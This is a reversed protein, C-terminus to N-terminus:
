EAAETPLGADRWGTIGAPMVQANRFGMKGARRAASPAKMCLPGSCYFVLVTAPDEPLDSREFAAPDLNIAGPVHGQMWRQPANVDIVTAAGPRSVLQHVEEPSVTQLGLLRALM